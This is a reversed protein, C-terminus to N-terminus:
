EALKYRFGIYINKGFVPAYILSGDFYTGFADDSAIIANPQRYNLINEGGIYIDLVDNWRKSIQANMLVIDPSKDPRQYPEPNSSTDTIRQEGRWNVTLDFHWDNNTKYALNAFARHKPLLPKIKGGSVYDMQVDFLRYAVRIDFNEFLEYDLKAQFSNSFSKGELNYFSVERPNEYDVIIQNSFDTRYLDLAFVASRDGMKFGQTWNIGYNWAVEADLGYPTDSRGTDEIKIVRNTAFLGLNEAFINATRQGRGVNFRVVSEEAFNYKFNLRPTVFTGFNNHHDVRIGPIIALKSADNYTYEFFAGPVSEYRDFVGAGSKAVIENIDDLQYSIGFRVTHNPDPLIEQYILNAYLSKQTNDYQQFGYESDQDHYVGSMQFGISRSANNKFVVGTKNWFELRRTKMEMRWHNDHDQSTGEFHEHSGGKHNLTTGKIGFQGEWGNNGWWEWRNILVADEELPMDLFGDDNRDNGHGMRKGHALVATSLKENFTKRTNMNIEMRSGENLYGNLHLKEGAEPKKLEVNIQGTISEFGNVVSGPGKILHIGQVWPGPTFTLGYISAMSRVDPILERTIQVYPGALGLMQIQRTGTIADTFSVDVTPNTEFSESLNCCAAKTLEERSISEINLTKVFSAETTKRKYKIVINDLRMGDSLTIDLMGNSTLQVTDTNFGVYSVIISNHGQSNDLSFYGEFDSTTGGHEEDQFVVTAGILPNKNGDEGISFVYGEIIDLKLKERKKMVYDEDSMRNHYDEMEQPDHVEVDRYLCCLFLEEYVEDPAKFDGNDHGAQAIAYRIDSISHTLDDISVTLIKTDENWDASKAGADIATEEIRDKCMGCLGDVRFNYEVILQDQGNISSALMLILIIGLINKM